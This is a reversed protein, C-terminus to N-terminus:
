GHIIMETPNVRSLKYPNYGLEMALAKLGHFDYLWINNRMIVHDTKEIFVEDHHTDKILRIFGFLYGYTMM